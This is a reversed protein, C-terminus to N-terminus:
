RTNFKPEKNIVLPGLSAPYFKLITKRLELDKTTFSAIEKQFLTVRSPSIAAFLTDAKFLIEPVYGWLESFVPLGYNLSVLTKVLTFKEQLRQSIKEVDYLRGWRKFSVHYYAKLEDVGTLANLLKRM